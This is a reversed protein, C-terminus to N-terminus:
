GRNPHLAESPLKPLVGPDRPFPTVVNLDFYEPSSDVFTHISERLTITPGGEFPYLFGFEVEVEAIVEYVEGYWLHRVTDVDPILELRYIAIAFANKALESSLHEYPDCHYADDRIHSLCPAAMQLGTRLSQKVSFLRMVELSGFFLMLLLPLILVYEILAAGRESRWNQMM